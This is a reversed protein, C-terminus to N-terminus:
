SAEKAVPFYTRSLGHVESKFLPHADQAVASVYEELEAKRKERAVWEDLEIQRLVRDAGGRAHMDAERLLYILRMDPRTIEPAQPDDKPWRNGCGAGITLVPYERGQMGVHYVTWRGGGVYRLSLNSDYERIRNEMDYLDGTVPM